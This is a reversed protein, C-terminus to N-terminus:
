EFKKPKSYFGFRDFTMVFKDSYKMGDSEINMMIIALDEVGFREKISVYSGRREIYIVM